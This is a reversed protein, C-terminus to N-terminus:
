HDWEDEKDEWADENEILNAPNGEHTCTPCPARLHCSCVRGGALITEFEDRLDQYEKKLQKNNLNM